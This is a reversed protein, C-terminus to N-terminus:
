WRVPFNVDHAYIYGNFVLSVYNLLVWKGLIVAYNSKAFQLILYTNNKAFVSCRFYESLWLDGAVLTHNYFMLCPLIGSPPLPAGPFKLTSKLLHWAPIINIKKIKYNKEQDEYNLDNGIKNWILNFASFDKWFHSVYSEFM